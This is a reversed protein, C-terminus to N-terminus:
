LIYNKNSDKEIDMRGNIVSIITVKDPANSPNYIVRYGKFILEKLFHIPTNQFEPVFRGSLPFEKLLKESSNVLNKVFRIAYTPSDAAIFNYIHNLNTVSRETWEIKTAM